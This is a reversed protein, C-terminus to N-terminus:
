PSVVQGKELESDLAGSDSPSELTQLAGLTIPGDQRLHVVRQPFPITINAEALVDHIRMVLESKAKLFDAREVWVRVLIDVGDAGLSDFLIAPEPEDLLLPHDTMAELLVKRTQKLDTGYEVSVPIEIRRVSFLTYNIITSKLVAENPIRVMLNDFTRIRSSLLDIAVITGLTNDIKVTDNISFPRDFFLFFGSIVNSVSTQAAFGLAITFVGAAALLASVRIGLQSLAAIFVLVFLSYFVLKSAIVANHESGAQAILKGAGRAVLRALAYGIVLMAIVIVYPAIVEWGGLRESETVIRRWISEFREM